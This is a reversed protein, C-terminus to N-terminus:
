RFTEWVQRSNTLFLLEERYKQLAAQVDALPMTKVERNGVSYEEIDGRGAIRSEITKELLAIMSVVHNVHTGASDVIEVVGRGSVITLFQPIDTPADDKRTAALIIEYSYWGPTLQENSLHEIFRQLPRTTDVTESGTNIRFIEVWAANGQKLRIYFDWYTYRQDFGSFRFDFDIRLDLPFKQTLASASTEPTLYVTPM